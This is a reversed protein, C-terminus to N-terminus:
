DFDGGHPSEGGLFDVMKKLAKRERDKLTPRSIEWEDAIQDRTASTGYLRELLPDPHAQWAATVDALQALKSNGEAPDRRSRSGDGEPAEYGDYGGALVIPLLEAIVGTNAFWEDEIRYGLIIAREGRAYVEAVRYMTTIFQNAGAKVAQRDSQDVDLWQAVKDHRRMCWVYCEQKVDEPTVFGQFRRAVTRSAVSILGTTMDMLRELEVEDIPPVTARTTMPKGTNVHQHTSSSQRRM